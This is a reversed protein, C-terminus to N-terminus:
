LLKRFEEETLGAQQLIAKMLSRKIDQGHMPITTIRGTISHRLVCHSGRQKFFVFGARELAQIIKRSHLTPLRTM